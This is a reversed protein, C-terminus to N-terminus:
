NKFYSKYTCWIKDGKIIETTSIKSQLIYQQENYFTQKTTQEKINIYVKSLREWSQRFIASHAVWVGFVSTQKYEQQFHAQDSTMELPM